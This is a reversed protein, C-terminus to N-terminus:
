VKAFSRRFCFVLTEDKYKFNFEKSGKVSKSATFYAVADYGQIAGADTTFIESVQAESLAPLVFLFILAIKKM